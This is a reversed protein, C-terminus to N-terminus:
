LEAILRLMGVTANKRSQELGPHIIYQVDPQVSIIKTIPITATIEIFSEWNQLSPHITEWSKGMQMHGYLIGASFNKYFEEITCGASYYSNPANIKAPSYSYHGFLYAMGDGIPAISKELMVYPAYNGNKKSDNEHYQYEVSTYLVGAKVAIGVTDFTAEGEGIALFDEATPVFDANYPTNGSIDADYMAAKFTYHSNPTYFVGLGPATLPFISVPLNASVNPVVGASSNLFLGGHNCALFDCNLDHKGIFISTKGISQMFFANMLVTADGNNINSAVQMDGIIEGSIDRGHTNLFTTHFSAGKWLGAASLDADAALEIFGLYFNKQTIGGSFNRGFDGIYTAGVTVISDRQACLNGIHILWAFIFLNLTKVIVSKIPVAM